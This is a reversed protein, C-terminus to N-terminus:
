HFHSCCYTPYVTGMGSYSLHYVLTQPMKDSIVNFTNNLGGTLVSWLHNIRIKCPCDVVTIYGQPHTSYM